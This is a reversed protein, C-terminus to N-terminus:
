FFVKPWSLKKALNRKMDEVDIFSDYGWETSQYARYVFMRAGRAAWLQWMRSKVDKGHGPFLAVSKWYSRVM